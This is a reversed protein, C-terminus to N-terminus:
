PLTVGRRKALVRMAYQFYPFPVRPNRKLAWRYVLNVMARPLKGNDVYTVVTQVFTKQAPTVARLGKTLQDKLPAVHGLNVQAATNFSSGEQARSSRFTVLGLIATITSKIWLRRDIM